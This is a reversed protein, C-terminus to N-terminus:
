KWGLPSPISFRNILPTVANMLLVAFMFCEPYGSYMRMIITLFGIGIGFYVKGKFTLPSTVPDTAIFFAGFMTAGGFMQHYLFIGSHSGALDVIGSIIFMTVLISVPIEWSAAKRYILYIGGLICAIVSTEGLSGATNGLIMNTLATHVGDYKLATLPTAGSVADAVGSLNEYASAGLQQTFAMIVFARGVMAPNFINMGVGGFLIKGLGIAAFAGIVTAYWPAAPPLSFALIIGTVAASFDHITIPKRRMQVFILEAVLCSVTCLLIQKVAYFRFLFVSVAIVPILSIIVDLMVRKTHAGTDLIHPSPSVHIAPATEGTIDTPNTIDPM